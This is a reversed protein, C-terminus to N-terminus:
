RRAGRGARWSWCMLVTASAVIAVGLPLHVGLNREYGAAFQGLYGILLLVSAVMPVPSFRGPRVVMVAAIVTGLVLPALLGALLAHVSLAGFEGGLFLGALLPQAWVGATLLTTCVRLPWLWRPM